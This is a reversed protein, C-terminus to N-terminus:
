PKGASQGQRSSRDKYEGSEIFVRTLSRYDGTRNLDDLWFNFGTLNYDPADEPNRRLYAFYHALVYATNYERKNSGTGEAVRRLVSARTETKNNLVNVFEQRSGRNQDAGTNLLLADVYEENTKGDYLTKFESRQLWQEALARKNDELVLEWGERGVYLARGVTKLDDAFEAYGPSRGFAAQYLRYVAYGARPFEVLFQYPDRDIRSAFERPVVTAPPQTKPDSGRVDYITINASHYVNPFKAFFPQNAGAQREVPGLYIYDIGYYSILQSAEDSGAYISKVDAERAAFEYGHSWLWATDGRLVARGALSLIPQHITPATLFLARPGTQERAFAAAAMEEHSFLLQRSVIEYQLALLGSIISVLALVTALLRAALRLREVRALRVLWAAVLVSTPAYWLYILKINDYDNPSVVVILSFILLFLFALYFRRWIPPAAFWAPIIILMPLGINVLWYWTWIPANHGRWGPQLRMFSNASVHGVLNLLYPLALLVAPVWFALWQRRPQLLFLFGSILGIGMYVHAHFLPTIGTLTGAIVLLGVGCGGNRQNEELSWNRWVIAFITLVILAIPFGFLSSRQPLLTDVIFNTWQIQRDGMNAYNENLQTWFAPLAKGSHRWDEWFYYFGFGGNLLFIITALAASVGAGSPASPKESAGVLRRAFSFFLVSFITALPISTVLLASRLDMGLAALISIQFDPLFPYLLPAPPLPTYIPAFNQGHLFSTSLALHFPLDYRTSGGSYVGDAAPELLRSSFLRLFIPAFITVVLALGAYEPRWLAKVSLVERRIRRLTELWLVIAVTWVAATFALMPEFSLRGLMRAILYAGLTTLTWGVVTGSAAQEAHNLSRRLPPLRRVLGIGLLTAGILFAIGTLMTVNRQREDITPLQSFTSQLIM